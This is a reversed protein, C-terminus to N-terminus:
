KLTKFFIIQFNCMENRGVWKKEVSGFKLGQTKGTFVTSCKKSLYVSLDDHLGYQVATYPFFYSM